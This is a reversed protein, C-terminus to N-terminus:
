DDMGLAIGTEFLATLGVRYIQGYPGLDNRSWVDHILQRDAGSYRAYQDHWYTSYEIVNQRSYPGYWYGLSDLNPKGWGPGSWWGYRPVLAWGFQSLGSGLLSPNLTAVGAIATVIGRAMGYLNGLNGAFALAVDWGVISAMRAPLSRGADVVSQMQPEPGGIWRGDPSQGDNAAWTGPPAVAPFLVDLLGGLVQVGSRAGSLDGVYMGSRVGFEALPGPDMVQAYGPVPMSEPIMGSLGAWAGCAFTVPCRGTPDTLNVPNNRAYAYANLSQPDSRSAVVPDVSLFTGTEPDMWRANMYFLHTGEDRRHGAFIERRQRDSEATPANWPEGDFAGFPKYRAQHIVAGDEDVVAAASGLRDSLVYRVTRSTSWGGGAGVFGQATVVYAVLEGFARIDVRFEHRDTFGHSLDPGLYHREVYRGPSTETREYVREGAADYTARMAYSYPDCPNSASPGACILREASDFKFHRGGAQVRNGSADYAYQIGPRSSLAYAKTPHDFRQEVGGHNTLNGLVDYGFTESNGNRSWSAIRNRADYTYSGSANGNSATPMGSVSWDIVNGLADHTPTGFTVATANASFRDQILDRNPDADGDADEYAFTRTGPGLRMATPRGLGDYQVDYLIRTAGSDACSAPVMAGSSSTCVSALFAGVYDYRVGPGGASSTGIRRGLLDYQYVVWHAGQLIESALRGFPDHSYLKTYGRAKEQYAHLEDARYSFSVDGEPTTLLEPRDLEDYITTRVQLRANTTSTVNGVHDYFTFSRRDADPDEISIVQGATDYHYVLRHSPSAWASAVAIPDHVSELQGSAHYGYLTRGSGSCGDQSPNTRTASSNTCEDVLLVRDGDYASRTLDGRANQSWVVDLTAHARVDGSEVIAEFGAGYHTRSAGRPTAISIPRGLADTETITAPTNGDPIGTIGDCLPNAGCPLDLTTRTLRNVPDRYTASGMYADDLGADRITKWVGGWGDDIVATRVYDDPAVGTYALDEVFSLDGDTYISESVLAGNRWTKAVRGFADLRTTTAPVDRYGPTVAVPIGFVPHPTFETLVPSRGDIAPDMQRTLVSATASYDYAFATTHRNGDTRSQLNGYGDYSYDTQDIEDREVSGLDGRWRHRIQNQLRGERTYTFDTQSAWSSRQDRDRVQRVLGVVWPNAHAATDPLAERIVDSSARQTRVESLFDYGYQDDYVYSRILVTGRSGQYWNASWEYALRGLWTGAAKGPFSTVIDIPQWTAAYQHVLEGRDKVLRMALRGTRGLDQHFYQEIATDGHTQRALGFGLDLRLERDLRPHAYQFRTVDGGAPLNRGNVTVQSIVATSRWLAMPGADDSWSPRAALGELQSDRQVIMSAYGITAIGGRGTDIREILDSHRAISRFAQQDGVFDDTGDGDIDLIKFRPVFSPEAGRYYTTSERTVARFWDIPVDFRPDRKWVSGGSSGPDHIWSSAEDPLESAYYESWRVFDTLADGNLDGLMGTTVTLRYMWLSQAFPAPPRYVGSEPCSGGAVLSADDAESACWGSGTNLLVGREDGISWVVDTLGDRNLDALRVGNDFRYTNPSCSQSRAVWSYCEPTNGLSPGRRLHQLGAHAFELPPLGTVPGANAPWIGGPLDYQPGREWRPSAGPRQIWVRTRAPNGPSLFDPDAAGTVFATADDRELAALDPIGDGNFDAFEPALDILNHCVATRYEDALGYEQEFGWLSLNACPSRAGTADPAPWDIETQHSSKVLVEEFPPLGSELAPDRQWGSGTNRFVVRVVEGLVPGTAAGGSCNRDIRPGHLWTSLVLDALGDGDLDVLRLIPRPQLWGPSAGAGSARLPALSTTERALGRAFLEHAANATRHEIAVECMAYLNGVWEAVSPHESSTAIPASIQRYAFYPQSYILDRFFSDYYSRARTSASEFGSGTNILLEPDRVGARGNPYPPVAASESWLVLQDPLGDGDIDGIQVSSSNPHLANGNSGYVGFPIRYADNEDPPSWQSHGGAGAAADRYRFTRAPLGACGAVTTGTCDTGFEQVSTLRSRQTTYGTDGYRFAYRRYYGPGSIVRIERLRKRLHRAVGHTFLSRPDPRVEYVFEIARPGSSTGYVITSPYAEGADSAVDYAFRISNGYADLMEELLWRATGGGRSVRHTAATVGFTLKTGDPREVTWAGNAFRIRHFSEVITHYDGTGGERVLLADGLEYEPCNAFDPVGFRASCRIEPLDLRWGVGFPGDGERSSYTLAIEPAFGGPGPPVAIPIRLAAAGTSESVIREAFNADGSAEIARAASPVSFSVATSIWAMAFLGGPAVRSRDM